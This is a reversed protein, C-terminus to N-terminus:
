LPKLPDYPYPKIREALSFDVKDALEISSTRSSVLIKDREDSVSVEFPKDSVWLIPIPNIIDSLMQADEKDLEDLLLWVTAGTDARHYAAMGLLHLLEPSQQQSRQLTSGDESSVVLGLPEAPIKKELWRSELIKVAERFAPNLGVFVAV